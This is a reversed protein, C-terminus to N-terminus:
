EAAPAKKRAPAKAAPKKAPKEVAAKPAPAKAPQAKVTRKAAPKAAAPKAAAPQESPAEAAPKAARAARAKPEPPLLVSAGADVFSAEPEDFWRGGEGLYRFVAIYDAPVVVSASRTAGRKVLPHAGPTWDNFNGVVSVAEDGAPLTFTIKRGGTARDTTTKLM